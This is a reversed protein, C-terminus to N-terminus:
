VCQTEKTLEEFEDLTNAKRALRTYNKLVKLDAENLIYERLEASMKGPLDDLIEFLMELREEYRGEERGEGRGQVRLDQFMDTWLM